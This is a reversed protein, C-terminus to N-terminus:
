HGTRKWRSNRSLTRKHKGALYRVASSVSSVEPVDAVIRKLIEWTGQDLTLTRSVQKEEEPKSPPAM